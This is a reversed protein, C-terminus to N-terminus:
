ICYVVKLPWREVGESSVVYAADPSVTDRDFMEEVPLTPGIWLQRNGEHWGTNTAGEPLSTDAEDRIYTGLRYINLYTEDPLESGMCDKPGPTEVITANRPAFGSPEWQKTESGLRGIVIIAVLFAIVAVVVLRPTATENPAV